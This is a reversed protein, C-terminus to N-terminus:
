GKDTTEGEPPAAPKQKGPFLRERLEGLVERAAERTPSDVLRWLMPPIPKLDGAPM